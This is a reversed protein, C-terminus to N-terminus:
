MLLIAKFLFATIVTTTMVGITAAVLKKEYFCVLTAGVFMYDFIILALIVIISKIIPM